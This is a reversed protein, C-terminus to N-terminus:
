LKKIYTVIATHPFAPSFIPNGDEDVYDAYNLEYIQEFGLRACLKGSFYSSCDVRCIHLGKEKGIELTKEVLAKAVGKGRWNSDVSIIRIELINLGRFKGDRNVNRDVYNLLRLIKKFKANECTTIYEPEEDKPPDMKGNLIVGIIAGNTSVAMLSLNNELSSMSCYEELELCTSDESEPILEISHNLPEDRFFFRRLFKLIRLKDDKTIIQIHYDMGIREDNASDALTYKVMKPMKKAFNTQSKGVDILASNDMNTSLATEM